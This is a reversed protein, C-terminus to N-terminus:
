LHSMNGGIRYCNGRKDRCRAPGTAITVSIKSQIDLIYMYTCISYYIFALTAM